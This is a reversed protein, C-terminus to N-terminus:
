PQWQHLDCARLGTPHTSQSPDITPETVQIAQTGDPLSYVNGRFLPRGAHVHPDNFSSPRHYQQYPCGNKDDDIKVSFREYERGAVTKRLSFEKDKGVKRTVNILRGPLMHELFNMTQNIGGGVYDSTDQASADMRELNPVMRLGDKLGVYDSTDQAPADMRELNPVMKSSPDM